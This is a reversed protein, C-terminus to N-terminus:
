HPRQPQTVWRKAKEFDQFAFTQIDAKSFHESLTKKVNPFASDSVVAIRPIKEHQDHSFRLHSTLEKFSEQAPFKRAQVIVGDLRGTQDIYPDLIGKVTEFDDETLSDRPKLIAVHANSDVEVAIMHDQVEDM